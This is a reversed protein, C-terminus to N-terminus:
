IENKMHYLYINKKKKNKFLFINFFSFRKIQIRLGTKFKPISSLCIYIYSHTAIQNLYLHVLSNIILYM